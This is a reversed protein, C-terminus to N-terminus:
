FRYSVGVSLHPFIKLKNAKRALERREAAIENAATTGLAAAAVNLKATLNDNASLTTKPKGFSVGVDFVFGFGAEQAGHHGWGLGLYPAVSPFKVRGSLADDTGYGVVTNNVRVTGAATPRGEAKVEMSRLYVGASLRFGNAFPFWDGYLGLQDAKLKAKYGISGVTRQRSISGVTTADIRVSMTDSISHSYGLGAGLIGAKAYVGRAQASLPSLACCAAISFCSLSLRM